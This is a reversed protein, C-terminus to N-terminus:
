SQDVALVLIQPWGFMVEHKRGCQDAEKERSARGGGDQHEDSL